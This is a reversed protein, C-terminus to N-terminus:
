GSQTKHYQNQIPRSPSFGSTFHVPWALDPCLYELVHLSRILDRFIIDTSLPRELVVFEFINSFFTSIMTGSDTVIASCMVKWNSYETSNNQSFKKNVCKVCNLLVCFSFYNSIHHTCESNWFSQIFCMQTQPFQFNTSISDM